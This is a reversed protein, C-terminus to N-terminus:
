EPKLPEISDVSVADSRIYVTCRTSVLTDMARSIMKWSMPTGLATHSTKGVFNKVMDAVVVIFNYLLTLSTFCFDCFRSLCAAPDQEFTHLTASVGLLEELASMCCSEWSEVYGCNETLFRSGSKTDVIDQLLYNEDAMSWRLRRVPVQHRQIQQGDHLFQLRSVLVHEEGDVEAVVRLKLIRTVRKLRSGIGTLLCGHNCFVEWYLHEVSKSGHQGWLNTSIGHNSLM